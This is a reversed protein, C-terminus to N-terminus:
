TAKLKELLPKWEPEHALLEIAEIYNERRQTAKEDLAASRLLDLWAPQRQAVIETALYRHLAFRRTERLFSAVLDQYDRGDPHRLLCDFLGALILDDLSDQHREVLASLLSGPIEALARLAASVAEGVVNQDDQLAYSYILPRQDANALVAVATLAPEGSMVMSQADRPDYLLRAAHFSALHQDLDNIVTLATARLVGAEEHFGPPVEEYTQAAAELLPLDVQVAVPRLARLCAARVPAAPDRKVANQSYDAYCEILAPRVLRNDHSTDALTELAALLVQKNRAKSLLELAFAAAEDPDDALSRLKQIDASRSAQRAM